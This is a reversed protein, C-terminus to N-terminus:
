FNPCQMACSALARLDCNFLNFFIFIVDCISNFNVLWRHWLRLLLFFLWFSTCPMTSGMSYGVTLLVPIAPFNIWCVRRQRAFIKWNRTAGNGGNTSRHISAAHFHHLFIPSELFNQRSPTPGCTHPSPSLQLLYSHYNQGETTSVCVCVSVCLDLCVQLFRWFRGKGVGWFAM